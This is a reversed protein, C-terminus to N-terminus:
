DFLYDLSGDALGDRAADLDARTFSGAAFAAEVDGGTRLLVAATIVGMPDVDGSLVSPVPDDAPEDAPEVADVTRAVSQSEAVPGGTDPEETSGGGCSVAAIAALGVVLVLHHVRALM